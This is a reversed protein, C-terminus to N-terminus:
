AMTFRRKSPSKLFQIIDQVLINDSYQGAVEELRDDFKGGETDFLMKYAARVGNLTVKDWGSREIGILNLGKLRGRNGMVMGYPIVDHEVGTMGGIMAMKGIRCFQHVASLGGLVAYDEICVHGALTANNVLITHNGVMCDHGVHVGVMLLNDDGIKTILGGGETGINITVHERIKNRSGIDLRGAEGKYKLDQPISGISAFSHIVTDAGISTIGSVCVHSVLHVNDGLVVDGGVVCYAGITVNQGLIAGSEILVTPHIDNM